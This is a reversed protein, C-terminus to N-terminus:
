LGYFAKERNYVELAQAPTRIYDYIRPPSMYGNLYRDAATRNGLVLASAVDTSATGVPTSSETITKSAGMICIVPDNTTLQRDYSIQVHYWGATLVGNTPTNWAGATTSFTQGFEFRANASDYMLYKTGKDLLRGQNAGGAGNVYIWDDWTFEPMDNISANAPVEVKNAASTFDLVWAGSPLQKWTASTLTGHNGYRSRDVLTFGPLM